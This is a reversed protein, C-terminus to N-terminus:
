DRDLLPLRRLTCRREADHKADLMTMYYKLAGVISRYGDEQASRFQIMTRHNGDLKEYQQLPTEDIKSSFDEVVQIRWMLKSMDPYYVYVCVKGIVNNLPKSEQFTHVWFRGEALLRMFDSHYLDLVESDLQLKGVLKSTAEIKIM